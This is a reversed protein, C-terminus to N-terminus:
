AQAETETEFPPGLARYQAIYLWAFGGVFAIVAPYRMNMSLYTVSYGFMLVCAPVSSWRPVQSHPSRLVPILLLLWAIGAVLFFAETPEM